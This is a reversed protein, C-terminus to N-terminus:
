AASRSRQGPETGTSAAGYPSTSSRTTLSARSAPMAADSVSLSLVRATVPGPPPIGRNPILRPSGSHFSGNRHAPTASFTRFHRVPRTSAPGSSGAHAMRGSRPGARGRHAPFSERREARSESVDRHDQERRQRSELWLEVGG